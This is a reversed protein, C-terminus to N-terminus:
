ATTESQSSKWNKSWQEPNSSWDSLLTQHEEKIYKERIGLEILRPYQLIPHIKCPHSLKKGDENKEFSIEGAFM